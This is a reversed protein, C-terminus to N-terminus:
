HSWTTFANTNNTNVVCELDRFSLRGLDGNQHFVAVRFPVGWRESALAAGFGLFADCM